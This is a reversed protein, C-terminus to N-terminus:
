EGNKLSDCLDNKGRLVFPTEVVQEMMSSM